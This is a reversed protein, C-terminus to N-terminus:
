DALLWDFIAAEGLLYVIMTASLAILLRHSGVGKQPEGWRHHKWLEWASMGGLLCFPLLGALTRYGLWRALVSATLFCGILTIVRLQMARSLVRKNGFVLMM